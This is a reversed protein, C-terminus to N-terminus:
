RKQKPRNEEGQPLAGKQRTVTSLLRRRGRSIRVTEVREEQM